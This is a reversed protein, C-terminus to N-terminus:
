VHVHLTNRFPICHGIVLSKPSVSPFYFKLDQIWSFNRVNLVANFINLHYIILDYLPHLASVRQGASPGGLGRGKPTRPLWVYSAGCRSDMHSVDLIPEEM